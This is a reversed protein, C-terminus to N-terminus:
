PAAGEVEEDRTDATALVTGFQGVLFQGVLRHAHHRAAAMREFVGSGQLQGIQGSCGPHQRRVARRQAM